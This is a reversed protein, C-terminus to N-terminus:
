EVWNHMKMEDDQLQSNCQTRTTSVSLTTWSNPRHFVVYGREQLPPSTILLGVHGCALQRKTVDAKKIVNTHAPICARGAWSSHSAVQLEM